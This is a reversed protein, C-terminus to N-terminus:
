HAPRTEAEHDGADLRDLWHQRGRAAKGHGRRSDLWADIETRDWRRAQKSANPLLSRPPVPCAALFQQPTAQCYDAAQRLTLLRPWDPLTSIDRRSM